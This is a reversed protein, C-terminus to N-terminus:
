KLFPLAEPIFKDKSDFLGHNHDGKIEIFKKKGQCKAFLKEGQSYPVTKDECSHIFLIPCAVKSLKEGSSFDFNLTLRNPLYWFTRNAMDLMSYFTAEMVLAHCKKNQALNVAVAGGLSWGWIIIRDEKIGFKKQLYDYSADSDTYIDDENEIKGTSIGFGRYDIALANFGMERLLRMRKEGRSINGANGHFFLVTYANTDVPMWWANLEVGDKTPIWLEKIGLDDPPSQAGKEPHLIFKQQFFYVLVCLSVYLLFILSLIILFKKM